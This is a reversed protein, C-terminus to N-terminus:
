RSSVTCAPSEALFVFMFPPFILYEQRAISLIISVVLHVALIGLVGQEM